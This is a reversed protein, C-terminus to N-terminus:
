FYWKIIVQFKLLAINFNYQPKYRNSNGETDNTNSIYASNNDYGSIKKDAVQNGWSGCQTVTLPASESM